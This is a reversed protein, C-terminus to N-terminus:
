KMYSTEQTYLYQYTPLAQISLIQHIINILLKMHIEM